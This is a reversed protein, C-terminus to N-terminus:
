NLSEPSLELQWFASKLDLKSFTTSGSLKAQIDEQNPIPFSSTQICKNVNCADLTIRIDGDDKPTIVVNSIWTAPTNRPHEEIIDQDMMETILHQVHDQQHYPITRRPGAVPKIAVNTYLKVQYDKLKGIGTFNKSFKHMINQIEYKDSCTIINVPCLVTPKEAFSIIGLQEAAKDALIPECDHKIIHWQVPVTRNGFTVACRATGEISLPPKVKSSSPVMKKM